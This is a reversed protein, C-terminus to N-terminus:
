IGSDRNKNAYEKLVEMLQEIENKNMMICQSIDPPIGPSKHEREKIRVLMVDGDNGYERINYFPKSTQM